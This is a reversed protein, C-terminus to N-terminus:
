ICATSRRTRINHIVIRPRVVGLPAFNETKKSWVGFQYTGQFTIPDEFSDGFLREQVIQQDLLRGRNTLQSSLGAWFKRGLNTRDYPPAAWFHLASSQAPLVQETVTGVTGNLTYNPPATEPFIKAIKLCHMTAEVSSRAAWNTIISSNTIAQHLDAEELNTPTSTTQEAHCVCATPQGAVDVIFGVEFIDNQAM